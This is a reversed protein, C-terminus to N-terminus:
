ECFFRQSELIEKNLQGDIDAQQNFFLTSKHTYYNITFPSLYKNLEDVFVQNCSSVMLYTLLM